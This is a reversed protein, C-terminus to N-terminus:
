PLKISLITYIQFDNIMCKVRNWRLDDGTKNTEQQETILKLNTTKYVATQRKTTTKKEDQWPM